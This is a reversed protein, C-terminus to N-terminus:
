RLDEVEVAASSTTAGPQRMWDDRNRMEGAARLGDLTALDITGAVWGPAERTGEAVVGTMSLARDPPVYIGAAGSNRDVAPSWPALGVTPSMVTAFQGELARATAAARVRHYGSPWETCSPILLVEAGAEVQARVLLPFESDYCIAVALRGLATDFVRLPGGPVIGWAHEFPTMILKDQAGIRGGPTVLRATNVFAGDARRRPGSAALIHVGHRRALAAHVHDMDDLRDAVAALSLSLDGAVAPGAAAAVEMAGYEPFVLLAAGTAAGDGVWTSLKAAWADFDAPPDLPYQAAAVRLSERPGTM